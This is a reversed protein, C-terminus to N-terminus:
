LASIADLIITNAADYDCDELWGDEDLEGEVVGGEVLAMYLDDEWNSNGLPRKGSFCEGEKWLALLLEKFYERITTADTTNSNVPLELIDKIDM